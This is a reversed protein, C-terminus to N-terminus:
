KTCDSLCQNRLIDSRLEQKDIVEGEHEMNLGGGVGQHYQIQSSVADFNQGRILLVWSKNNTQLRGHGLRSVDAYLVRPTVNGAM